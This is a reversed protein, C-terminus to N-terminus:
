RELHAADQPGHPRTGRLCDDACADAVALQEMLESLRAM